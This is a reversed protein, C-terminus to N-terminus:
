SASAANRRLKRSIDRWLSSEWSRRVHAALPRVVLVSIRRERMRNCLEGKGIWGLAPSPLEGIGGDRLAAKRVTVNHM